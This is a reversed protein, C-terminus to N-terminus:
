EQKDKKFISKIQGTLPLSSDRNKGILYGVFSLLAVFLTRWFGFVLIMLGVLLGAFAGIAKGPNENAWNAVASLFNM